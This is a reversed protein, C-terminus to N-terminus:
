RDLGGQCDAPMWRDRLLYYLFLSNYKFYRGALRRPESGLRFLWTLGARQMWSPADPKLGANVDFAFGVAALVARPLRERYRRIWAYQKPAGLGVWIVDPRCEQLSALLADEEGPDLAGERDVMGHWRGVVQIEEGWGSIRQVLAEGLAPSGGLLYHRWGGGMSQLARRMFTPGYIRDRLGAGQRNLCWVLPMGDPIHWDMGDTLQRFDPDHRRLTVVHTNAFDVAVRTGNRAWRCFCDILGDYDTLAMRTGLVPLTRPDEGSPIRPQAGITQMCAAALVLVPALDM